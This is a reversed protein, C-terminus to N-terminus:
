ISHRNDDSVIAYRLESFAGLVQGASALCRYQAPIQRYLRAAL